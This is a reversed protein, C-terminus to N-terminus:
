CGLLVASRRQKKTARGTGRKTSSELWRHRTQGICTSSLAQRLLLPERRQCSPTLVDFRIPRGSCATLSSCTFCLDRLPVLSRVKLRVLVSPCWRCCPLRTPPRICLCSTATPSDPVQCNLCQQIYPALRIVAPSFKLYLCIERGPDHALVKLDSLDDDTQM